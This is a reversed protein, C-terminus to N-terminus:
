EGKERKLDIINQNSSGRMDLTIDRLEEVYPGDILYDAMALVEQVKPYVSRKLYDYTYGSWVYVKTNPLREKVYQIVLLTLFANEMCLPEGGMICLNREIGQATLGKVITDLVDPTFDIGGDFDQAEPNHCGPCKIPCGQVFFSVSLGPAGSIDNLILGSYKM